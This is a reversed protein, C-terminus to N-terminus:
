PAERLGDFWWDAAFYLYCWHSVTMESKDHYICQIGSAADDDDMKWWIAIYIYANLCTSRLFFPTVTRQWQDRTNRPRFLPTDSYSFVKCQRLLRSSSPPVKMIAKMDRRNRTRANVVAWGRFCWSKLTCDFDIGFSALQSLSFTRLREARMDNSLIQRLFRLLIKHFTDVGV